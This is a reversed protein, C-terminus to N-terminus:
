NVRRSHGHARGREFFWAVGAAIPIWAAFILVLPLVETM